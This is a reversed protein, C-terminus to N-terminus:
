RKDSSGEPQKLTTHFFEVVHVAYDPHATLAHGDASLLCRVRVGAASLKQAMRLSQDTPVIKDKTGHVLLVPPDNRTVHHIPSAFRTIALHESVRGGILLAVLGLSNDRAPPPVVAVLNTPPSLAAIARIPRSKLAPGWGEHADGQTLGALLALHAGSSHGSIVIQERDLGLEAANRELWDVATRVDEIQDPFTAGGSLRYQISAVAFGFRPFERTILDQRKSGLIWGGGHIWIILPFGDPPNDARPYYIDLRLRGGPHVAYVLERRVAEVGLADRILRLPGSEAPRAPVAHAAAFGFLLLITAVRIM